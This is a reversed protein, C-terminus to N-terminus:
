RNLHITIPVFPPRPFLAFAHTSEYSAVNGLETLSNTGQAEHSLRNSSAAAYTRDSASSAAGFCRRWSERWDM